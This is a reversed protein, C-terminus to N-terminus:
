NIKIFEYTPTPNFVKGSPRYHLPSLFDCVNQFESQSICEIYLRANSKSLVEKAGQLVKLEHGEVDIKIISVKGTDSGLVGDLRKCTEFSTRNGKPNLVFTVSETSDSNSLGFKNLFVNNINNLNMTENFAAHHEKNPEFSYVKDSKCFFQFFLSHNGTSAGVDIFIGESSNLAIHQLLESEYFLGKEWFGRIYPHAKKSFLITRGFFEFSNSAM